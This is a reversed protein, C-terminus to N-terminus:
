CGHGAGALRRLLWVRLRSGQLPLVAWPPHTASADVIKVQSSKVKAAKTVAKANMHVETFPQQQVATNLLSLAPSKTLSYAQLVQSHGPSCNCLMRIHRCKGAQSRLAPWLGLHEESSVRKSRYRLSWCGQPAVAASYQPQPQM